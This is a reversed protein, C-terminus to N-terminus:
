KACSVFKHRRLVVCYFSICLSLFLFLSLCSLCFLPLTQICHTRNLIHIENSAVATTAAEAAAAVATTTFKNPYGRSLQLKIYFHCICMKRKGNTTSRQLRDIEKQVGHIGWDDNWNNGKKERWEIVRDSIYECVCVCAAPRVSQAMTTLRRLVIYTFRCRHYLLLLLKFSSFRNRTHAHIWTLGSVILPRTTTHWWPWGICSHLHM